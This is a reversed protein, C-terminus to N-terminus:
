RQKGMGAQGLVDDAIMRALDDEHKVIISQIYKAVKGQLTPTAQVFKKGTPSEFFAVLEKLEQPTYERAYIRALDQRIANWGLYRRSFEHLVEEHVAMLSNEAVIQEVMIQAAQDTAEQVHFLELLRMALQEDESAYLCPALFMMCVMLYGVTRRM